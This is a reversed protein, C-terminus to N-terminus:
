VPCLLLSWWDIPSVSPKIEGFRDTIIQTKCCLNWHTYHPCDMWPLISDSLKQVKLLSRLMSQLLLMLICLRLIREKKSQPFWYKLIWDSDPSLTQCLRVSDSCFLQFFLLISSILNHSIIKRVVWNNFEPWKLLCRRATETIHLIIFLVKSYNENLYFFLYFHWRRNKLDIKYKQSREWLWDFFKRWADLPCFFSFLLCLRLCASIFPMLM